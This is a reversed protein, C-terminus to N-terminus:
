RRRSFGPLGLLGSGFLWVAAPAPVATTIAAGVDGSHVAWAHMDIDEGVGSQRGALFNFHWALSNADPAYETASWYLTYQLNSFPGTNTLGNGTQPDCSSQTSTVPNCSGKDGLTNYFMHAMESATSGAYLTGPASVNYGSDQSGDYALLFDNSTTGDIPNTTPLRWGTIGNFNLSATWANASAWTMEGDNNTGGDIGVDDFVSGAGANADALWTLNLVTDYYAEITAGNGDLDRALLTSEWTGQGSIPAAFVSYPILLTAFLLLLTASRFPLPNTLSSGDM